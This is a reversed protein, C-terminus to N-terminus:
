HALLFSILFLGNNDTGPQKPTPRITSFVSNHQESDFPSYDNAESCDTLDHHDPQQYMQKDGVFRPGDWFITTQFFHIYNQLIM